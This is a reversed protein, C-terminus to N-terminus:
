HNNRMSGCFSLTLKFRLKSVVPKSYTVNAYTIDWKHLAKLPKETTSHFLDFRRTLITSVHDLQTPYIFMDEHPLAQERADSSAPVKSAGDM